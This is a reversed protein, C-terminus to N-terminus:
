NFVSGKRRAKAQRMDPNDVLEKWDEGLWEQLQRELIEVDLPARVQRGTHLALYAAYIFTSSRRIEESLYSGGALSLLFYEFAQEWKGEEYKLFGCMRYGEMVYYPDKQAVAKQAVAEYLAMAEERKKEATLIAAKMSTAMKWYSYGSVEGDAMAKEAERITSDSYRISYKYEKIAYYAESAIFLASIWIAVDKLEKAADLLKGVEKDLPKREQKRTCEMVATVQRKFRNEPAMLDNGADTQAMRNHLAEAMNFRPRICAVTGSEELRVKRDKEWDMTTLRIGQPVGAKLVQRFWETREPGDKQAPPFYLCFSVDELHSVSAKFRLLEKWLNDPTHAVSTDPRYDAKLLKDHRLAKLMDYKEEVKETFWGAYEQWLQETYEDDEGRYPTDFRFFIDDFQGIPSREIEMFKDVLDMDTEKVVWIALRWDKKGAIDAWYDVAKYYEQIVSSSAGM